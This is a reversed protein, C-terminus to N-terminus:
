SLGVLLRYDLPLSLPRIGRRSPQHTRPQQRTPRQRRNRTNTASANRHLSPQRAPAQLLARSRARSATAQHRRLQRQSQRRLLFCGRHWRVSWSCILGAAALSPWLVRPAHAPESIASVVDTLGETAKVNILSEWGPESQKTPQRRISPAPPRGLEARSETPAFPDSSAQRNRDLHTEVSLEPKPEPRISGERGETLFPALALAVQGPTQFRRAPEKSMMKAVVSALEASIEPRILNLPSAEMSFHAQYVDWLHDGRFPPGGSLLYYFTCGLSYIDARIDASQADRIQEPAIYDPTGLMQGQRTLDSEREGESTVKALGFDLVKVIGKNGDRALILNAPKIDRHVMGHEHAHQLGLAAQRIFRLCSRDAAAGQNEGDTGPRAGRRVGDVLRLQRRNADRFLRDRHEPTAAQRGLPDRPPLM